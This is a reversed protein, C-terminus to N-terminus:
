QSLSGRSRNKLSVWLASMLRSLGIPAFIVILIFLIGMVMVWRQTYGSIFQELSVYVASGIVSGFLTGSGGLIVAMLAGISNGVGLIEPSVFCYYYVDLMGALGAFAGAIVFAIYKHLWVNFGLIEMKKENQKIGVLAHGFPSNVLLYMILCSLGFLAFVFYFFNLERSLNWFPLFAFRPRSIGSLGDAGGTFKQWKVALGWFMEGLALTVMMFYVGRTRVVIVGLIAALLISALLGLGLEFFPSSGHFIRLNLLAMTYGAVGFYAAHGLPTLGMYGMLLDLSMAFIILIMIRILLGTFHAPLLSPLIGLLAFLLTVKIFTKM